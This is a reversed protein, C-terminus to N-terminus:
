AVHEGTTVSSIRRNPDNENEPPWLTFPEYIRRYLIRTVIKIIFMEMIMMQQHLMSGRAISSFPPVCAIVGNMSLINIIAAQLQSLVLILQYMAYKPIIKCSHLTQKLHSFMIGVPWLAIITLVGLFPNIWVAAGTIALNSPHFTGNAYLVISLVSFVTKLIAFQLSAAKMWFLMRRTIPVKPLCLCCCCCPGTSIMLTENMAQSYKLFAEEEGCEELLLTFFKYIVVAFYSNSTLETFITARPIWMGLCAMTVFVPAAGNVWIITTKKPSPVMKYVYVCEELYLLMSISSMLTFISFFLVGYIDLQNIVDIALPPTQLCTPSITSTFNEM